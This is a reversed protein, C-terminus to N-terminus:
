LKQLNNKTQVNIKALHGILRSVIQKANHIESVWSLASRGHEEIDIQDGDIKRLLIRIEETTKANLVPPISMNAEKFKKEDIWMMVPTGVSMAELASTGYAGLVFQDVVIDACQFMQLLLPKSLACNLFFVKEAMGAEGVMKIAKDRDIGWGSCILSTQKPKSACFARLFRDTGKWSFDLRSPVFLLHVDNSVNFGLRKGLEVRLAFKENSSVPTAIGLPFPLYQFNKLKLRDCGRLSGMNMPNHSFIMDAKEFSLRLLRHHLYRGAFRLPSITELKMRGAAERIDGGSPWISFPRGTFNGVIEPWGAGLLLYDAKGLVTRVRRLEPRRLEFLQYATCELFNTKVIPQNSVGNDVELLWDPPKFDFQRELKHWKERPWQTSQMVEDYSLTLSADEWLPQSFAFNNSSLRIFFASEGMENLLRTLQYHTNAVGGALGIHMNNGIALVFITKLGIQWRSPLSM